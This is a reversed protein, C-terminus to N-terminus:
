SGSRIAERSAASDPGPGDSGERESGDLEFFRARRCIAGYMGGTAFCRYMQGTRTDIRWANAVRQGPTAAVLYRPAPVSEPSTQGLNVAVIAGALIGAAVVVAQPYTM